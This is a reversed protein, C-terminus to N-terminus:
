TQNQIVLLNKTFIKKEVWILDSFTETPTTFIFKQLQSSKFNSVYNKIEKELLKIEAKLKWHEGDKKHVILFLRNRFHQRQQSSQNKYLWEILEKPNTKAYDFSKNFGKPFVSTKHDFSIEQLTFDILRNKSNQEPVVGECTSFIYEVAMASWFNYWRNIAYYFLEKKDLQHKNVTEAIKKILEEWTLTKYIFNTYGDWIDNQKRYWKYPYQHRKKLETEIKSVDVKM